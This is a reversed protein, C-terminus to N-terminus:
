LRNSRSAHFARHVARAYSPRDKRTRSCEATITPRLVNNEGELLHDPSWGLALGTEILSHNREILFLRRARLREPVLFPNPYTREFESQLLKGYASGQVVIAFINRPDHQLVVSCLEILEAQRGEARLYELSTMAMAVISERKSLTRMYIGTELAHDTIPYHRRFWELRAPHGGSTAELNWARGDLGTYRMFVHEPAHCLSVDLGLLDALILYLIPMSVCQGRGTRLVNHILKNPLHTGLPDSHDYTIATGQNWPGPEFLVTRVAALKADASAGPGALKRARKAMNKLKAIVVASNVTPDIVQDLALKAQAYDLQHEPASLIASVAAVTSSQEGLVTRGSEGQTAVNVLNM